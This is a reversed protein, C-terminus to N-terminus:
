VFIRITRFYSIIVFGKEARKKNGRLIKRIIEYLEYTIKTNMKRINM